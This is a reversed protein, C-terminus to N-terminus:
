DNYKKVLALVVASLKRLYVKASTLDTVNNVIYTDLQAFTLHSIDSISLKSKANNYQIAIDDPTITTTDSEADSKQMAEIIKQKTVIGEIEVYDYEWITRTGYEDTVIHSSINYRVQTKGASQIIVEPETDSQGNM